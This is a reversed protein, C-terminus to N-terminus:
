LCTSVLGAYVSNIRGRMSTLHQSQIGHRGVSRHGLRYPGASGTPGPLENTDSRSRKQM